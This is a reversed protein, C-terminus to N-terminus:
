FNYLFIDNFEIFGVIYSCCSSNKVYIQCLKQSIIHFLKQVAAMKFNSIAARLSNKHSSSYVHNQITPTFLFLTFLMHYFVSVSNLLMNKYRKCHKEYKEILGGFYRIKSFTKRSVPQDSM